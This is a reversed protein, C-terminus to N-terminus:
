GLTGDDRQNHKVTLVNWIDDTDMALHEHQTLARVVEGLSTALRASKALAEPHIDGNEQHHATLLAKVDDADAALRELHHYLTEPAPQETM